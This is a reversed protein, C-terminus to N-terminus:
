ASPKKTLKQLCSVHVRNFMYVTLPQYRAVWLTAACSLINLLTFIDHLSSATKGSNKMAIKYDSYAQKSMENWKINLGFQSYRRVRFCRCKQIAFYQPHRHCWCWVWSNNKCSIVLLTISIVYWKDIIEKFAAKERMAYAFWQPYIEEKSFHIDTQGTFHGYYFKM